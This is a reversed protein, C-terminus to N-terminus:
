PRRMIRLPLNHRPSLQGLAPSGALVPDSPTSGEVEQDTSAKRPMETQFAAGTAPSSGAVQRNVTLISSERTDGGSRFGKWADWQLASSFDSRASQVIGPM